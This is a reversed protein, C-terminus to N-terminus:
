VVLQLLLLSLLSVPTGALLFAILGFLPNCFWLVFCAFYLHPSYSKVNRLTEESNVVVVQDAQQLCGNTFPIPEGWLCSLLIIACTHGVLLGRM